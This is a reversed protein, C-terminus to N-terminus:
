LGTNDKNWRGGWRGLTWGARQLNEIRLYLVIEFEQRLSLNVKVSTTDIEHPKRLDSM